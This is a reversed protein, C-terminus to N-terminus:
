MGYIFIRIRSIIRFNPIQKLHLIVVAILCVSSFSNTNPCMRRASALTQNIDIPVLCKLDRKDMYLNEQKGIFSLVHLKLSNINNWNFYIFFIHIKRHIVTFKAPPTPMLDYIFQGVVKAISSKKKWYVIVFNFARKENYDFEMMYDLEIQSFNKRFNKYNM